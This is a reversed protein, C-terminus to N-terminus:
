GHRAHKTALRDSYITCDIMGSSWDDPMHLSDVLPESFLLHNEGGAGVGTRRWGPWWVCENSSRKARIILPERKDM